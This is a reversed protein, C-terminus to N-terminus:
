GRMEDINVKHTEFTIAVVWPNVAWGYGRDANLTNWLGQFEEEPTEGDEGDNSVFGKCGEAVCDQRSIDRVRQVRVDTVVLTLRSAWRPMHMGQRFKGPRSMTMGNETKGDAEFQVTEVQTLDRPPLHDVSEWTRWAERVYIRDDLQPRVKVVQAPANRRSFVVENTALDGVLLEGQSRSYMEAESYEPQPKLVRRTQTKTGDLVARIMPGSMLLPRDTM